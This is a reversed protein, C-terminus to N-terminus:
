PHWSGLSNWLLCIAAEPFWFQSGRTLVMDPMRTISNFNALYHFFCVIELLFASCPAVVWILFIHFFFLSKCLVFIVCHLFNWAHHLSQHKEEWDSGCNYKREKAESSPQGSIQSRSKVSTRVQNRSKWCGKFSIYFPKTADRIPPQCTKLFILFYVNRWKFSLHLVLTLPWYWCTECVVWM